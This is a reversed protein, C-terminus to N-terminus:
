FFFYCDPLFEQLREKEANAIPNGMLKCTKLKTLPALQNSIQHLLNDSLDLQELAQLNSITEPLETIRNDNLDLRRLQILQGIPEPFQEFNNCDLLLTRLQRMLGLKQPLESLGQHRMSLEQISFISKLQLDWETHLIQDETNFILFHYLASFEMPDYPDEQNDLLELALDINAETGSQLLHLIKPHM